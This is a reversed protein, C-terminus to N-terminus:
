IGRIGVAEGPILEFKPPIKILMPRGWQPIDPIARLRIPLEVIAPGVFEIKAEYVQPTEGNKVIEITDGAEIKDAQRENIYSIIETTDTGTITIFPVGPLVTEGERCLIDSVVGDIPAKITLTDRLINIEALMSHQVEIEATIPKLALAVTYHLSQREGFNNQREAATNWAMQANELLRQTEEVQKALADYAVQAKAVGYDTAVAKKLYLDKEIKIELKLDDLMILNPQQQAQLELVRLHYREVDMAFQRREAEAETENNIAEVTLQDETAALEAQLRRIESNITNIQAQLHSDDLRAVVQNKKVETFLPVISKLQGTSTSSVQRSNQQAIGVVQFRQAQKSFVLVVGAVTVAWVLIPLFRMSIRGSRVHKCDMKDM